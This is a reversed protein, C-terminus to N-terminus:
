KPSRIVRPRAKPARSVNPGSITGVKASAADMQDADQDKLELAQDYTCEQFIGKGPQLQTYWKFGGPGNRNKAMKMILVSPSMQKLTIVADADQGISDSQALAEPGAPENKVLGHARNLQAAAVIPVQYQMALNKLGGSLASVDQWESSKKDMLTLYDVYVIDPRNREIQAAISLLSIKGKSTDNVHLKGTINNRLERVFKKYARPDFNRGQMLDLSAFINQGVASSLFSHIRLTVQARSQELANFQATYGMMAATTAMRQMTWSKGEGLRAGIIWLDGPQPGGTREDLTIFGTPIGAAGHEAVRAVRRDVDSLIDEFSTIIDGDNISGMSAAVGIIGTQMQRAAQEINGEAIHDTVERTLALLQTRAYHKRVDDAFHETDNVAKIRFQPFARAFATKSPSKKYKLYYTEIWEWEDPYGSFMKSNIGSALANNADQDRLVSSILYAETSVAM